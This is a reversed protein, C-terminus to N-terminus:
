IATPEPGAGVARQKSPPMWLSALQVSLAIVGATMMGLPQPFWWFMHLVWAWGACAIATWLSLRSSRTYEARRWWRPVLFLFSFYAVYIALSANGGTTGKPWGLIENTILGVGVDVPGAM